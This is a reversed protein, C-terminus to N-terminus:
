KRTFTGNYPTAACPRGSRGRMGIPVEAQLKLTKGGDSLVLSGKANDGHFLCSDPNAEDCAVQTIATSNASCDGVRETHAFRKAEIAISYAAVGGEQVATHVWTGRFREPVEVAFDPVRRGAFTLALSECREDAHTAFALVDKMRVSVTGKRGGKGAWQCKKEEADCQVATLEATFPCKIGDVQIRDAAVVVRHSAGQDGGYTGYWAAPLTAAPGATAAAPAPGATAGGPTPTPDAPKDCATCTLALTLALALLPRM